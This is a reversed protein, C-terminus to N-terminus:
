NRIFNVPIKIQQSRKQGKIKLKLDMSELADVAAEVYEIPLVTSYQICELNSSKTLICKLNVMGELSDKPYDKRAFSATFSQLLDSENLDLSSKSILSDRFFSDCESRNWDNTKFYKFENQSVVLFPFSFFFFGLLINFKQM